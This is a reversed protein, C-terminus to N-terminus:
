RFSPRTGYESWWVLSYCIDIRCRAVNSFVVKYIVTGLGRRKKLWGNKPVCNPRSQVTNTTTCLTKVAQRSQRFLEATMAIYNQVSVNMSGGPTTGWGRVRRAPVVNDVSAQPSGKADKHENQTDPSRGQSQVWKFIDEHWVQM